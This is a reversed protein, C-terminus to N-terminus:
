PHGLMVLGGIAITSGIAVAGATRLWALMSERNGLSYIGTVFVVLWSLFVVPLILYPTM